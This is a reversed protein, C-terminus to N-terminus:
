VNIWKSSLYLLHEMLVVYDEDYYNVSTKDMM